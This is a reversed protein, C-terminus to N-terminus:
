CSIEKGCDNCLYAFMGCIMVEPVKKIEEIM